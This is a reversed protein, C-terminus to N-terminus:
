TATKIICVDRVLRFLKKQEQINYLPVDRSNTDGAQLIHKAGYAHIATSYM